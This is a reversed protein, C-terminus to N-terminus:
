PAGGIAFMDRWAGFQADFQQNAARADIQQPAGAADGYILLAPRQDVLVVAVRRPTARAHARLLDEDGPLVLYYAPQRQEGDLLEYAEDPQQADTVALFPRHLYYAVQYPEYAADAFILADPPTRSRVWWAAAKLGQDPTLAGQAPGGGALGVVEVGFIMSLSRLAFLGILLAVTIAALGRWAMGRKIWSGLVIAANIALPAVGLLLYGYVNPRTFLAFPALYVIAWLLPAARAELRVLAPASALGLAILIALAGAGVVFGANSVFAGLYLGAKRDSGELLRAALGGYGVLGASYALMIAFNFCLVVLPLLMVRTQFLLARTRAIRTRLGPQETEVTLVGVGFVVVFLLPFFLEVLLSIALATAARRARQPSPQQFYAIFCIVTVLQCVFMLPIHSVGSTRSLAAHIPLLAVLFAAILGAARGALRGALLAALPVSLLSILAFPLNWWFENIHVGGLGFLTTAAMGILPPLVGHGNLVINWTSRASLGLAGLDRPYFFSVIAALEAHDSSAFPQDNALLRLLAGCGVALGILALPWRAPPAPAQPASRENPQM